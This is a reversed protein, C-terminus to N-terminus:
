EDGGNDGNDDGADFKPKGSVKWTFSAKVADELENTFEMSQVFAEFEFYAGDPWELRYLQNERSDFDDLAQMHTEEDKLFFAEAEVSGGDKLGGIYEKYGDPSDHGTVEIEDKEMSPGSIDDLRAVETFNNGSGGGSGNQRLIKTGYAAQARIEPM